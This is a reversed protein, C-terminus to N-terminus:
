GIYEALSPPMPRSIANLYVVFKGFYIFLAQNYVQLHMDVPMAGGGPREIQRLISEDTLETLTSELESDLQSFWLQLTEVSTSIGGESPEQDWELLFDHFSSTYARTLDGMSVLLEGLAPKSGGPTVSLDQNNLSELLESRLGNMAQIWSWQMELAAHM